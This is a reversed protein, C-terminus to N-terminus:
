SNSRSFSLNKAVYVLSLFVILNWIKFTWTDAYLVWSERRQEGKRLEIKSGVFDEMLEHWGVQSHHRPRMFVATGGQRMSKRLEKINRPSSRAVSVRRKISEGKMSGDKSEVVDETSAFTRLELENM